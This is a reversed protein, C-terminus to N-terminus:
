KRGLRADIEFRHPAGIRVKAFDRQAPNLLYNTESPVVVSPVALVASQGARVWADGIAQLAPPAPYRRWGPPLRRVEVRRVLAASFRLEFAVYHALLEASELHVLLELAALSLSASAYVVAVGRGNWRGGHHRAGEGDFAHARHKAKVLRFAAPM